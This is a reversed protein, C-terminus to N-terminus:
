EGIEFAARKSGVNGWGANLEHRGPAVAAGRRPVGATEGAGLPRQNWERQDWDVSLVQRCQRPWWWLMKLELTFVQHSSDAVVDGAENTIRWSAKGDDTRMPLVSKSCVDLAFHVPQGRKFSRSEFELEPRLTDM